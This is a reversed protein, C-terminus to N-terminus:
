NFYKIIFTVLSQYYKKRIIKFGNYTSKDELKLFEELKPYAFYILADPDMFKKILDWKLKQYREFFPFIDEMKKQNYFHNFPIIDLILISNQEIRQNAKENEKVYIYKDYSLPWKSIILNKIKRSSKNFEELKGFWQKEIEEFESKYKTDLPKISLSSWLNDILEEIKQEM